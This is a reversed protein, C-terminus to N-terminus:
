HSARVGTPPSLRELAADESERQDRRLERLDELPSRSGAAGALGILSRAAARRSEVRLVGEEETIAVEDGPKLGLRRRYEAPLVLRGKEDLRAIGSSRSMHSM